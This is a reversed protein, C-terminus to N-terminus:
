WQAIYRFWMVTYSFGRYRNLASQKSHQRSSTVPAATMGNRSETFNWHLQLTDCLRVAHVGSSRQIVSVFVNHLVRIFWVGGHHRACTVAVYFIQHPSPRVSRFHHRWRTVAVVDCVVTCTSGDVRSSRRLHVLQVSVNIPFSSPSTVAFYIARVPVAYGSLHRLGIIYIVPLFQLIYLPYASIYRTAFM